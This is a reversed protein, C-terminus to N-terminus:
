LARERVELQVFVWIPYIVKCLFSDHRSANPKKNKNDEVCEKGNNAYAIFVYYIVEGSEKLGLSLKYGVIDSSHRVFCDDQEAKFSFSGMEPFSFTSPLIVKFLVLIHMCSNALPPNIQYMSQKADQRHAPISIIKNEFSNYTDIVDRRAPTSTHTTVVLNLALGVRRVV